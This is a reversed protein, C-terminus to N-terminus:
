SILETVVISALDHLGKARLKPLIVKLTETSAPRNKYVSLYRSDRELWERSFSAKSAALGAAHLVPYVKTWYINEMM